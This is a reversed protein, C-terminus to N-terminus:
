NEVFNTTLCIYCEATPQKGSMISTLCVRKPIRSMIEKLKNNEKDYIKEIESVVTSMSHLEVNPNM